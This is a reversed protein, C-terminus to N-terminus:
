AGLKIIQKTILDIQLTDDANFVYKTDYTRLALAGKITKIKTDHLILALIANLRSKTTVTDWGALTIHLIDSQKIQAILNGHLYLKCINTDREFIICTNNRNFTLGNLLAYAADQSIKRM